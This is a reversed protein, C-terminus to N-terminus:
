VEDLIQIVRECPLELYNDKIYTANSSCHKCYRDCLNTLEIKVEKLV